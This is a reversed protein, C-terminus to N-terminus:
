RPNQCTPAFTRTSLALTLRHLIDRTMHHNDCSLDTSNTRKGHELENRKEGGPAPARIGDSSFAPLQAPLDHIIIILVHLGRPHCPRKTSHQSPWHAPNEVCIYRCADAHLKVAGETLLLRTLPFICIYVVTRKATRCAFATPTSRPRLKTM